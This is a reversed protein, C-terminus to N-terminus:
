GVQKSESSYAGDTDKKRRNEHNRNKRIIEMIWSFSKRTNISSTDFTYKYFRYWFYLIVVAVALFIGIGLWKISYADQNNVYMYKTFYEAGDNMVSTIALLAVILGFINGRKEKDEIEESHLSSYLPILKEEIEKFHEEICLNKKCFQYFLNHHTYDSIDTFYSCAKIQQVLHVLKKLKDSQKFDGQRALRQICYFQAHRQLLIWLYIWVYKQAFIGTEFTNFYDSNEKPKWTLLACGEVSSSVLFNDFLRILMGSAEAEAGKVEYKRNEGRSIRIFDQQWLDPNGEKHKEEMQYYTLAHIRLKNHLNILKKKGNKPTQHTNLVDFLFDVLSASNWNAIQGIDRGRVLAFGWGALKNDVQEYLEDLQSNIVALEEEIRHIEKKVGACKGAAKEQGEALAAEHKGLEEKKKVFRYESSNKVEQLKFLEPFYLVSVVSQINTECKGMIRLCGNLDALAKGIGKRIKDASVCNGSKDLAKIKGDLVTLPFSCGTTTQDTKRFLYNFDMLDEVMIDKGQLFASFVLVGVHAYPWLVLHPSFLTEKFNWFESEDGAPLNSTDTRDTDIKFSAKQEQMCFRHDAFAEWSRLKLYLDQRGANDSCESSRKVSYIKYRQVESIQGAMNKRTIFNADAQLYNQIHPYFINKVVSLEAKGWISLPSELADLVAKEEEFWFPLIYVTRNSTLAISEKSKDTNPIM